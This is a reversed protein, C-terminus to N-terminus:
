SGNSKGILDKLAVRDPSLLEAIRGPNVDAVIIEGVETAVAGYIGLDQMRATQVRNDENPSVYHVSEAHYRHILYLHILTMLRKRRMSPAYTEQDRISLISRGRRDRIPSFVIAALLADSEDVLSLELLESGAQRPRLRVLITGTVHNHSTWLRLWEELLKKPLETQQTHQHQTSGAGM